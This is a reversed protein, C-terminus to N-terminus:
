NGYDIYAQVLGAQATSVAQGKTIGPDEINAVFQRIVGRIAGAWNDNAAAGHVLSPVIESVAYDDMADLQYEDYLSSNYDTRAPISGKIPNFADQGEKSGCITLWAVANASNPANACFAFSDSSMLYSGSTGPSPAWGYDVNPTLNQAKLFSNTWDGMIFMAANGDAVLQAADTWGIDAHNTNVYSFIDVTNNLANQVETGDWDTTGNWLGRYQAPSSMSALLVSEFLHTVAWIGNSSLALPTIGLGLLDIDSAVTFFDSLTVPPTLSNDAFIQKNYWLVNSRHINLPVSWIEGNQSVLDIVESRYNSLWNNDNFISTVPLIDGTQVWTGILEQGAHVGFSDAVGTTILAPFDDSNNYRIINVSPNADAFIDLLAGGDPTPESGFWDCL